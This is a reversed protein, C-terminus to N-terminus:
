AAEANDDEQLVEIKRIYKNAFKRSPDKKSANVVISYELYVKKGVPEQDSGVTRKKHISMYALKADPDERDPRYSDDSLIVKVDDASFKKDLYKPPDIKVLVERFGWQNFEDAAWVVTGEGEFKPAAKKGKGKFTSM